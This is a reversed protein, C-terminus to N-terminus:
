KCFSSKCLTFYVSFMQVNSRPKTIESKKHIALDDESSSDPNIHFGYLWFFSQEVASDIRLEVEEIDVDGVLSVIYSFIFKDSPGSASISKADVINKQVELGVDRNRGECTVIHEATLGETDKHM